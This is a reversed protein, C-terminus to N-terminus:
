AVILPIGGYRGKLRKIAQDLEKQYQKIRASYLSNEASQTTNISQSLGDFSLSKSAIGAGFAVDGLVALVQITALKGVADVLDKPINDWGTEYTFNWYNPVHNGNLYAFLPFQGSYMVSLEGNNTPSNAAPVIYINRSVDIGKKSSAWETPYIVQTVNNIKGELSTVQNILYDAMIYGWHAFEERVFDRQESVIQKPMKISLYNEVVETEVNVKEEIAIDSMKEGGLGRLPIDTLFLFIVEAASLILGSDVSYSVTFTVSEAAM